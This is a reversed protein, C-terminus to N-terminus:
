SWLGRPFSISRQTHACNFIDTIQEHRRFLDISRECSLGLRIITQHLPAIETDLAKEFGRTEWNLNSAVIELSKQIEEFKSITVTIVQPYQQVKNLRGEIEELTVKTKDISKSVEKAAVAYFDIPQYLVLATHPDWSM